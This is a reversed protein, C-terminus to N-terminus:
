RRAGQTRIEERRTKEQQRVRFAAGLEKVAPVAVIAAVLVAALWASMPGM